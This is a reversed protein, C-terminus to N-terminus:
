VFLIRSMSIVWRITSSVLEQRRRGRGAERASCEIAINTSSLVILVFFLSCLIHHIFLPLPPSLPPLNTQPPLNSRTKTFASSSSPLNSSPLNSPLNSPIQILNNLKLALQDRNLPHVPSNFALKLCTQTSYVLSLFCDSSINLIHQAHKLPYTHLPHLYSSYPLLWTQLRPPLNLMNSLICTSFSSLILAPSPFLLFLSLFLSGQQLLHMVYRSARGCPCRLCLM